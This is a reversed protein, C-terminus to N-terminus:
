SISKKWLCNGTIDNEDQLKRFTTCTSSLSLIDKVEMISFLNVYIDTNMALLVDMTPLLQIDNKCFPFGNQLM